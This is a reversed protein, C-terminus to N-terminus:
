EEWLWKQMRLDEESVFPDHGMLRGRTFYYEVYKDWNDGFEKELEPHAARYRVLNLYPSCTKEEKLGKEMFHTLLTEREDDALHNVDGSLGLLGKLEPYRELYYDADFLDRVTRPHAIYEGNYKIIGPLPESDAWAAPGLGALLSLMLCLTLFISFARKNTRRSYTQEAIM